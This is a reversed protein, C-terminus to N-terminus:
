PASETLAEVCGQLASRLQAQRSPRLGSLMREEIRNVHEDCARLLGLGAETLSIRLVRGHNPDATRQILARRQLAAVMENMSQATVFSRRALQASSLGPQARLVSLATYQPTTLVFERLVDDLQSRVALELRKILYLTRVEDV